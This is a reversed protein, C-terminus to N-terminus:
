RPVHLNVASKLDKEFVAYAMDIGKNDASIQKVQEHTDNLLNRIADRVTPEYTECFDSQKNKCTRNVWNLRCLLTTVQGPNWQMLEM